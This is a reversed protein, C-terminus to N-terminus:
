DHRQNRWSSVLGMTLDDAERNFDGLSDYFHRLSEDLFYVEILGTARRILQETRELFDKQSQQRIFDRIGILAEGTQVVGILDATGDSLPDYEIPDSPDGYDGPDYELLFEMVSKLRDAVTGTQRGTPEDEILDDVEDLDALDGYDDLEAEPPSEVESKPCEAATETDYEIPDPPVYYDDIPHDLLSFLKLGNKLARACFEKLEAIVEEEDDYNSM